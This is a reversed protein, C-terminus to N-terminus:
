AAGTGPQGADGRRRQVLSPVQSRGAQSALTGATAATLVSHRAALRHCHRPPHGPLRRRAAAPPLKGDLELSVLGHVLACAALTLRRASWHPFIGTRVGRRITAALVDLAERAAQRAPPDPNLGASAQGFM